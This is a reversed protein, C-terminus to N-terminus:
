GPPPMTADRAERRAAIVGTAHTAAAVALGAYIPEVGLWPRGGASQAGLIWALTLAGSVAMGWAAFRPAPRLSPYFVGLLPPLLTATGVSYFGYWLAVVSQSALAIGASAATAAVLGARTWFLLDAKGGSLRWVLDRGLTVGGVFLFSDVTSMITAIMGAFFVGLLVAPLLKEGLAPFADVGSPLGPILARAYMGTFTTLGDFLAFFLISVLIGNRATKPSRAAFCRQYFTPEVLTQLAIFYWAAVYGGGKGGDWTFHEVPLSQRLFGWGGASWVAVPLLLVFGGYMFAFQLGKTQVVARFGRAAIYALCFLACVIVSARQGWGTMRRLLVGLMLLYAAPLSLMFVTATGVIGAGRGYTGFLLDPVTYEASARAKRALLAAFLLAGVYYPLGMVLWNSLGHLYSYEGVGLVGGYWTAVLTVVFAPLTLTRGALLYDDAPAAPRRASRMGLWVTAALYAVVVGADLPGM